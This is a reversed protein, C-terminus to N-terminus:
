DEEFRRDMTLIANLYRSGPVTGTDYLHQVYCMYVDVLFETEDDFDTTLADQGNAKLIYSLAADMHLGIRKDDLDHGVRLYDKVTQLTIESLKM